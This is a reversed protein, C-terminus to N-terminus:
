REVDNISPWPGDPYGRYSTGLKKEPKIGCLFDVFLGAGNVCRRVNEKSTYGTEEKMMYEKFEVFLRRMEECTEVTLPIRNRPTPTM